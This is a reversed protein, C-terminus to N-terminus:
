INLLTSESLRICKQNPANHEEGFTVGATASEAQALRYRGNKSYPTAPIGTAFGIHGPYVLIDARLVTDGEAVLSGIPKGHSNMMKSPDPVGSIGSISVGCVQKVIWRVFGGCDFHLTDDCGEGWVLTDTLDLNHAYDMIKDGRIVRPTLEFGWGFQADSKSQYQDIFRLVNADSKPSNVVQPAPSLKKVDSHLCRGACVYVVNEVTLTAACFCTQEVKDKSLVVPAYLNRAGRSPLLGEAGWLYHAGGDAIRGALSIIEARTHDCLAENAM